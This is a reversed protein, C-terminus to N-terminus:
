KIKEIKEGKIIYPAYSNYITGTVKIKDGLHIPNGDNDYIKVDEETYGNALREMTNKRKLM